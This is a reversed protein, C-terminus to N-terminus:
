TREGRRFADISEDAEAAAFCYTAADVEFALSQELSAAAGLELARKTATLSRRPSAAIARAVSLAHARPDDALANVLGLTVAEQAPIWRSTLLLEKAKLLGVIAPLRASIGGTVAHGLAVEPFRLGAQPDAYVLDCALALEAGGGIAYGSVAAIAVGRARVLLRTTEQLLEFSERLEAASGTRPALTEKLDEGVCFARGEGRVVFAPEHQLERLAAVLGELLEVNLANLSEPRNLVLSPVDGHEIVVVSM